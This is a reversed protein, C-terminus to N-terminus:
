DKRYIENGALWSREFAKVIEPDFQTGAMALVEKFAVEKELCKRYPRDTTMADFADAVALLRARISISDGALGKPYGKGDFREHHELIYPILPELFSVGKVIEAGILPHSKIIRYEEDTLKGPKSLIADPIGIKGVDHLVAGWDILDMEEQSWDLEEAIARSIQAVRHSHGRTYPDRAEISNSMARITDFYGRKLDDFLYANQLSLSFFDAIIYLLKLTQQRVFAKDQEFVIVVVGITRRKNSLPAIMISLPRGTEKGFVETPICAPLGNNVVWGFSGSRIQADVERQIAPSLAEPASMKHVFEFGQEDVLFVSCVETRTLQRFRLLWTELIRHVDRTLIMESHFQCQQEIKEQLAILAINSEELFRLKKVMLEYEDSDIRIYKASMEERTM